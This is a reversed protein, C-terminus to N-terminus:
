VVFRVKLVITTPGGNFLTEVVACIDYEKCPDSTLGLVEWLPKGSEAFTYETSEFTIDGNGGAALSSNALDLASAFLDRDVAAGGNGDTEYVGVDIKGATTADAASILVQSVRANSPVRVARMVTDDAQDAAPSLVGVAEKLVGVSEAADTLVKPTAVANTLWTSYLDAM